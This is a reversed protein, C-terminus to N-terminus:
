FFHFSIFHFTSSMKLMIFSTVFSSTIKFRKSGRRTGKNLTHNPSRQDLTYPHICDTNSPDETMHDHSLTMHRHIYLHSSLTWIYPRHTGNNHRVSIGQINNMCTHIVFLRIGIILNIFCNLKKEWDIFLFAKRKQCLLFPRM